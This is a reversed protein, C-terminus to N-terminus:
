KRTVKRRRVRHVHRQPLAKRRISTVAKDRTDIVTGIFKAYGKATIAEAAATATIGALATGLEVVQKAAESDLGLLLSIAGKLVTWATKWSSLIADIALPWNRYNRWVVEAPSLVVVDVLKAEIESLASIVDDVRVLRQADAKREADDYDLRKAIEEGILGTIKSKWRMAIARKADPPIEGFAQKALAFAERTDHIQPLAERTLDSIAM